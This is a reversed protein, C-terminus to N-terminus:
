DLEWPATIKEIEPKLMEYTWHGYTGNTIDNGLAHGLLKKKAIQNVSYKDCLMSFTHRCDHPTHQEIGVTDLFSHLDKRFYNPKLDNLHSGQVLPAISHHIPVTRDKGATTKIGGIFSDRTIKLGKYASVRFGSFCMVLLRSATIDDRHNWFTLLDNETFPIGHEDDDPINIKVYLSLDKEALEHPVAYKYMGRFLNKILELSSHELKCNDIVAQLDFLSLEAFPKDHIDMCNKYAAKTSDISSRSYQRKTNIFKDDFYLNYVDAFTPKQEAVVTPSYSSYDAIIRNIVDDSGCSLHLEKEMGEVYTGAKLATLVAFGTYWDPVHCIAKERIPVGNETFETVPPHVAYPNHKKNKLYRITGFRIAMRYSQTNKVDQCIIAEKRIM